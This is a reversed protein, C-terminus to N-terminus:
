SAPVLLVSLAFGIVLKFVKITDFLKRNCVYDDILELVIQVFSGRNFEHVTAMRFVVSCVNKDQGVSCFLILRKLLFTKIETSKTTATPLWHALREASGFPKSKAWTHWTYNPLNVPPNDCLVVDHNWELSVSLPNFHCVIQSRSPSNQVRQGWWLWSLLLLKVDSLTWHNLHLVPHDVSGRYEWHWAPVNVVLNSM